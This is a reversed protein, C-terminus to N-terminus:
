LFHPVHENTLKPIATPCLTGGDSISTSQFSIEIQNLFVERQKKPPPAIEIHLDM